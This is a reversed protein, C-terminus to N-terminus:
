PAARVPTVKTTTHTFEFRLIWESPVSKGDVSAPTFKWRRSADLALRAFYRSPGPPDFSEEVVNGSADVRVRVGVKLTGRIGNLAKQPVDPLVQHAVEGQVASGAHANTEEAVSSIPATEKPRKHVLRPAALIVAVALVAAITPVIYRRKASASGPAASRKAPALAVPSPPQLYAAVDAVTCRLAPDRRLCRRAIDLFPAQLTEPLIPEGQDTPEWHPLHQTLVEVLTVGLSWIDGAPSKGSDAVEPADYVDPEHRLGGLEGPGCIGNSSIKLRDDIAMINAPKIHGHVLNKGHLYSLVDLAPGLMERTEAPTLPRGPLVQSLNEAAYEMVVYLMEENGVQCRGTEFLRILNPHSLNAALEWRALQLEASRADAPILKIAAKQDGRETLFVSGHDSGGLYQQLHFKGGVLQAEWQKLAETM